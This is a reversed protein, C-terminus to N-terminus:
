LFILESSDHFTIIIEFLSYKAEVRVLYVGFEGASLM